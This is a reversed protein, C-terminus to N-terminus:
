WEEPSTYMFFQVEYMPVSYVKGYNPGEKLQRVDAFGDEISVVEFTGEPDDYVDGVKVVLIGEGRPTCNQRNLSM